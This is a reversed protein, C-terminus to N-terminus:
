DNLFLGTQFLPQFSITIVQEPSYPTNGSAAYEVDNEVQFFLYELPHNANYPTRLKADNAQLDAPSVNAYTSYLHVLLQQTSNQSYGAYRHRLYHVYIEKVSALLLQRLAREM